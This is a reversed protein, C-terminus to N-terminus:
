IINPHYLPFPCSSPPYKLSSPTDARINNVKQTLHASLSRLKGKLCTQKNYSTLDWLTPKGDM